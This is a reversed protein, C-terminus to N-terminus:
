KEKKPKPQQSKPLAELPSMEAHLVIDISDEDVELLGREVKAMQPNADLEEVVLRYEKGVQKRSNSLFIRDVFMLEAVRIKKEKYKGRIVKTVQYDCEALGEPYTNEGWPMRYKARELLKGVLEVREAPDRDAVLELVAGVIKKVEGSGLAKNYLAAREIRGRWPCSGKEDNGFYLRGPKWASFGGKIGPHTGAKKGNRYFVIEKNGVTIALHFPKTSALKTLRVAAAKGTNIMFTLADKEQMLAFLFDGGKPAYGIVCGKTKSNATAPSIYASLTLEGGANRLNAGLHEEAGASSYRGGELRLSCEGDFLALGRKEIQFPALVTEGKSSWVKVLDSEDDTMELLPGRYVNKKPAAAAAPRKESTGNSRSCGTAATAVLLALAITFRNSSM